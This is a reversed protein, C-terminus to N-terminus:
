CEFTPRRETQALWFSDRSPLWNWGFPSWYRKRRTFWSKTCISLSMLCFIIHNGPSWACCKWIL